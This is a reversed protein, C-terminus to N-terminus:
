HVIYYAIELIDSLLLLYGYPVISKMDNCLFCVTSHAIGECKKVLCHGEAPMLHTILLDDVIKVDKVVFVVKLKSCIEEFAIIRCCKKGKVFYERLSEISEM